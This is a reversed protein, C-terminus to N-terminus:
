CLNRAKYFNDILITDLKSALTSWIYFRLVLLSKFNSWYFCFWKFAAITRWIVSGIGSSLRVFIISVCGCFIVFWDNFLRLKSSIFIPLFNGKHSFSRSISIVQKHLALTNFYLLLIWMHSCWVNYSYSCLSVIAHILFM